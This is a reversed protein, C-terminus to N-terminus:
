APAVVSVTGSAGRYKLAGSEGYLVGGSINSSPAASANAMALVGSGGGATVGSAEDLVINKQFRVSGDTRFRACDVGGTLYRMTLENGNFRFAYGRSADNKVFAVTQENTADGKVAIAGGFTPHAGSLYYGNDVWVRDIPNSDRVAFAKGTQSPGVRISLGGM